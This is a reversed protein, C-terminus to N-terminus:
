IKQNCIRLLVTRNKHRNQHKKPKPPKTTKKKKNTTTKTNKPQLDATIRYLLQALKPSKLAHAAIDSIKKQRNNNVHSGAGLDLVTITHDDVLLEKRISEVEAYAKDDNKNYIVEDVLHYVFPSHVGHRTKANLKHLFFDKAFRLNFM